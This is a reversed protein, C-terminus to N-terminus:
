KLFELDFYYRNTDERDVYITTEKYKEILLSLTLSDSNIKESIFCCKKNKLVCEFILITEFFTREYYDQPKNLILRDIIEKYVTGKEIRNSYESLSCKKLDVPLKIGNSKLSKIKRTKLVKKILRIAIPIIFGVTILGLLVILRYILEQKM